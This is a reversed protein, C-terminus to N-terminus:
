LSSDVGGAGLCPRGKIEVSFIQELPPSSAVQCKFDGADEQKVLTITLSSSSPTTEVSYRGDNTLPSAGLFLFADGKKWSIVQSGLNNVTCSLRATNGLDVKVDTEDEGFQLEGDGYDTDADEDCYDDGDLDVCDDDYVYEYDGEEYEYYDYGSNVGDM